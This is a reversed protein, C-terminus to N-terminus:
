VPFIMAAMRAPDRIGEQLMAEEGRVDGLATRVAAVCMRLGEREADEAARVLRARADAGPARRQAVGAELLGSWVSAYAVGEGALRKAARTAETLRAALEVEAGGPAAERGAQALAVRGALWTVEARITQVRLLFSRRLQARATALTAEAAAIDGEYLSIETAARHAYWHQIHYGGEPPAWGRVALESRARAPDGGVLWAINLSRALTTEAYRDGRRAADRLCVDLGLRMEGWRGLARLALLAYIRVTNLEWIHGITEDRLTKESEHMLEAGLSFRGGLYHVLGTSGAVWGRLFPDKSDGVVEACRKVIAAARANARPGQSALIGAFLGLGRVVRRREGSHLALRLGRSQFDAGRMTDVLALGAGVLHYIDVLVLERPPIASEDRPTFRLGRLRLRTRNWLLSLLARGPTPPLREGFEALVEELTALGREIEGGILLQEAAKRLCERRTGSEAGEAAELYVRAAHTGRGANVLADAMAIRLPRAADVGHQGLRLATAYMAVAREFALAQAALRGAREAQGAAREAQGAAELHRVLALPDQAAGVAAELANALREHHERQREADLRGVVAERVRDHYCEISDDSRAGLTRALSAVRLVGTARVLEGVDLDAAQMALRQSLPEGAVAILELLRRAAPDLTLIRSWLADDLRAETHEGPANGLHRVLEHIFFPHGRGERALVRVDHGVAGSARLLKGALTQSEEPSLAFLPLTRLDGPVDEVAALAAPLHGALTAEASARVTALFLLPPAELGQMVATFMALSDADAWQFDDIFVVVPRMRALGALLQRLAAFARARLEQLDPIRAETARGMVPVRRLVPFVRALVASDRSLLLAADVPELRALHAALADVVHDFAKFPVSEREYCRGSLVVVDPRTAELQGLFRRVLESKGIGSEGLVFTSIALGAEAEALAARLAELERERGVFPAESGSPSSALPAHAGAAALTAVGLRELIQEGPPREHPSRRLLEACLVDLDRPVEPVLTRPPTPEYSQKKMLIEVPTGSFPPRGTLAEYLMAGLSYWDAAPGVAHSTAQEPAMYTATGVIKSDSELRGHRDLDSVLGLDLLVVRGEATVLVNAPKIDRHIKHVGHLAAIGQALQRLADRLRREDAPMAVPVGSPAALGGDGVQTQGQSWGDERPDVDPSTPLRTTLRTTISDGGQHSSPANAGRVWALFDVGDLLEMTFFWEDGEGYLEGLRVLNPHALDALARFESKFRYLAKADLDRLTKLAVLAGRERDFAQYVVGMGGAGLRGRIAFRDTGRFDDGSSV